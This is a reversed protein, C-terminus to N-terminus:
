FNIGRNSKKPGLGFKRESVTQVKSCYKFFPLSFVAGMSELALVPGTNGIAIQSNVSIELGAHYETYLIIM